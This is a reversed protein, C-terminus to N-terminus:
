ELFLKFLITMFFAMYTVFVRKEMSVFQAFVGLFHWVQLFSVTYEQFQQEWRSLITQHPYCLLMLVAFVMERLNEYAVTRAHSNLIFNQKETEMKADCRFNMSNQHIKGCRMMMADIILFAADCM